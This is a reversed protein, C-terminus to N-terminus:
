SRGHVTFAYDFRVLCRTDPPLHIERGRPFLVFFGLLGATGVSGASAAATMGAIKPIATLVGAGVLTGTIFHWSIQRGGKLYGERDLRVGGSNQLAALRATVPESEGSPLWVEDFLLGLEAPRHLRGAGRIHNVRGYLLTGSPLALQGNVYVPQVLQGEVVDDVQSIKTHIGSLLVMSAETEAPVTVLPPASNSYAPQSTLAPKTGGAAAFGSSVALASALISAAFAVTVKM